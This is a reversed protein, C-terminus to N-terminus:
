PIIFKSETIRCLLLIYITDCFMSMSMLHAKAAEYLTQVVCLM